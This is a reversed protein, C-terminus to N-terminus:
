CVKFDGSYEFEVIVDDIIKAVKGQALQVGKAALEKARRSQTDRTLARVAYPSPSGDQAPALLADTINCRITKKFTTKEFNLFPFLAGSLSLLFPQSQVLFIPAHCLEHIKRSDHRM